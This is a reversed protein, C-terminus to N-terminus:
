LRLAGLEILFCVSLHLVVQALELSPQGDAKKYFEAGADSRQVQADLIGVWTSSCNPHIRSRSLTLFWSMPCFCDDNTADTM